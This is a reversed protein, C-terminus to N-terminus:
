DEDGDSNDYFSIEDDENKNDSSYDSDANKGGVLELLEADTLGGSSKTLLVQCLKRSCIESLLSLDM